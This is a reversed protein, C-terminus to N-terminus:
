EPRAIWTNSFQSIEPVHRLKSSIWLKNVLLNVLKLRQRKVQVAVCGLVVVPPPTVGNRMVLGLRTNSPSQWSNMGVAQNRSSPPPAHAMNLAVKRWASLM